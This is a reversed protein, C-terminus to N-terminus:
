KYLRGMDLDLGPLVVSHLTEGKPAKQHLHFKGDKLLYLDANEEFPDIIIYEKVGYKEYIRKKPRLDYYANEPSLIEMVIDPAGYIYDKLIDNNEKSIYVMDPQFSNQQDLITEIPGMIFTGDNGTREEFRYTAMILNGLVQQHLVTRSPWDILCGNIYQYPAGIEMAMYEDLTVRKEFRLM